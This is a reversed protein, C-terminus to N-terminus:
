VHARGIQGDNMLRERQQFGEWYKLKMMPDSGRLLIDKWEQVQRQFNVQAARAQDITTSLQEGQQYAVDISQLFHKSLSWGVALLGSITIIVAISLGILRVRFRM